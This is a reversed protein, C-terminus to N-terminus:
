SKSCAFIPSKRSILMARLPICGKYIGEIPKASGKELFREIEGAEPWPSRLARFERHAAAVAKVYSLKGCLLYGAAACGDLLKRTFIRRSARRLGKQAAKKASAGNRFYDLALTAALNNQLMLLNNRFNLRLKFPSNNPLTGGGLHYVVSDTIVRTEYGALAARWCFDIEEMHAFFRDDLGGLLKWLSSRVMLCAGTAWFVREPPGDYQGNDKEVRKLIRGRCFPYGYRDIYGGAAGAYEFSDKDFYSHLKPACIGCDPNKEMWELLPQLWNKPTEIDTNLLVFYEYDGLMALAKNYGGTFGYNKDFEILRVAPFESRLVEVSGDTSANDAVVVDAIGSTSDLVGPLFKRLYDETNWNLIVVACKM